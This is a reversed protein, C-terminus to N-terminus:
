PTVQQGRGSAWLGGQLVSVKFGSQAFLFAAAPGAPASM